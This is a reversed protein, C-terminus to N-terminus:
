AALRIELKPLREDPTAWVGSLFELKLYSAEFQARITQPAPVVSWPDVQSGRYLELRALLMEPIAKMLEDLSRAQTALDCEICQALWWLAPPSDPGQLLDVSVLVSLKEIPM